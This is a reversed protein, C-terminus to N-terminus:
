DPETIKIERAHVPQMEREHTENAITSKAEDCHGDQWDALVREHIARRVASLGDLKSVFLESPLHFCGTSLHVQLGVVGPCIELM